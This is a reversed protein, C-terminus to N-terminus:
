AEGRAKALAAIAAAYVGRETDDWSHDDVMRELAEYLAEVVAMDTILRPKDIRNTENVNAELSAARATLVRATNNM